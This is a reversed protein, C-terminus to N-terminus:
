PFGVALPEVPSPEGHSAVEDINDDEEEDDEGDEEEGEEQNESNLENRNNNDDVNGEPMSDATDYDSFSISDDFGGDANEDARADTM